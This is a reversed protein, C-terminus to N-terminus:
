IWHRAIRDDSIEHPKERGHFYVISSGRIGERKATGKYSVVSRPFLDDLVAHPNARIWEMDNRGDFEGWMRSALGGPVLAVGNCVVRCDYPDRPVAIKDATECYAALSDCNGVVVTDLGVLIMPVGLRYPEICNSYDPGRQGERLTIPEQEIPEFFVRKRDTFCVFRFAQSLNRAFGRYLKEVWEESYMSSFSESKENAQWFITAITIM